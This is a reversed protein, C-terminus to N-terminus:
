TWAYEMSRGSSRPKLTRGSDLYSNLAAGRSEGMRLGVAAVPGTYAKAWGPSYATQASIGAKELATAVADKVQELGNM